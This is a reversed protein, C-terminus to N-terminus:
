RSFTGGYLFGSTRLLTGPAAASTGLTLTTSNLNVNGSTLTFGNTATINNSFTIQPITGFSNNIEINYFIMSNASGSNSVSQAINGDFTVKRTGEILPDSVASANTWDGGVETDLFSIDLTGDQITIDNSIQLFTVTPAAPTQIQVTSSPANVLLNYVPISSEVRMISGTATSATGMQLWGGTFGSGLTATNHYGLNEGAGGGKNCIVLTGGSMSFVGNTSNDLNFVDRGATNNGLTGLSCTGGSMIYRWPNAGSSIRGTVSLTGSVIEIEGSTAGSSNPAIRDNIATGFNISGANIQIKGLLTWDISASSNMTGGNNWLRANVPINPDATFPTFTSASSLKFTGNTITLGGNNMTIVSTVELINNQSNGKNVTIGGGFTTLAASGSITNSAAGTFTVRGTGSTFTGNNTFDGGVTFPVNNSNNVFTGANVFNGFYKSATNATNLTLNGSSNNLTGNVQIAVNQITKNPGSVDMNGSVLLMRTTGNGSIVSNNNMVFGGNVTLTCNNTNFNVVGNTSLTVGAISQSATINVTNNTNIIVYDTTAPVIGLPWPANVVTSNWNGSGVTTVTASSLRLSCFLLFILILPVPYKESRM